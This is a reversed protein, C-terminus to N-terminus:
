RRLRELIEALKAESKASSAVLLRLAENTERMLEIQHDTQEKYATALNRFEYALSELEKSKDPVDSKKGNRTLAWVMFLAIPWGLIQAIQSAIKLAGVDM